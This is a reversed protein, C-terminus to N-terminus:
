DCWGSWSFGPPNDAVTGGDPTPATDQEISMQTKTTIWGGNPMPLLGIAGDSKIAACVTLPQGKKWPSSPKVKVYATGTIAGIEQTTISKLKAMDTAGTGGAFNRVVGQRVAERVGQRANLSDNFWLGYQIIGFVVAFLIPAVLAFEVAAAGRSDRSRRLSTAV